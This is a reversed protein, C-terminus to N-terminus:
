PVIPRVLMKQVPSTQATATVYEWASEKLSTAPTATKTVVARVVMNGRTVNLLNLTATAGNFHFTPSDPLKAAVGNTVRIVELRATEDGAITLKMMKGDASSIEYLEFAMTPVVYENPLITLGLDANYDTPQPDNVVYDAGRSLIIAPPGPAFDFANGWGDRLLTTGAALRVYPGRWGAGLTFAAPNSADPAAGDKTFTYPIFPTLTGQALLEDLSVPMRGIDAVFGALGAENGTGPTGLIASRLNTLTRQTADYRGQDVLSDTATIAVTTMIALIVLVILLEVLTLGRRRKANMRMM